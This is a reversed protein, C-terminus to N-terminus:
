KQCLCNVTECGYLIHLTFVGNILGGSRGSQGEGESGRRYLDQLRKSSQAGGRGNRRKDGVKGMRGGGKGQIRPTM